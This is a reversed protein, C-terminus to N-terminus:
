NRMVGHGAYNFFNSRNISEKPWLVVSTLACMCYSSEKKTKTSLASNDYSSPLLCLM